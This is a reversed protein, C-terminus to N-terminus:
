TDTGYIGKKAKDYQLDEVIDFYFFNLNVGIGLRWIQIL